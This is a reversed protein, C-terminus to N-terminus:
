PMVQSRALLVLTQARYCTCPAGRRNVPCDAVHDGHQARWEILVARLEERERRLAEAEARLRDREQALADIRHHQQEEAEKVYPHGANKLSCDNEQVTLSSMSAAAHFKDHEDLLALIVAPNASAMLAAVPSWARLRLAARIEEATFWDSGWGDIAGQAAAKLAETDVPGSM